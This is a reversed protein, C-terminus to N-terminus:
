GAMPLWEVRRMERSYDTQNLAPKQLIRPPSHPSKLEYREESNRGGPRERGARRALHSPDADQRIRVLGIGLRSGQDRRKPVLESFESPRFAAVDFDVNSPRLGIDSQHLSRCLFENRELGIQNQRAARKHGTHHQLVGAVRGITKRSTASGTPLPKTALRGCGPPLAVPKV